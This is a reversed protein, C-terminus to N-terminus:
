VSKIHSFLKEIENEDVSKFKDGVTLIYNLDEEGTQKDFLYAPRDDAIEKNMGDYMMTVLLYRDTESIGSIKVGSFYKSALTLARDIRNM